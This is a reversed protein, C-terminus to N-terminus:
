TIERYLGKEAIVRQVAKPLMDDLPERAVIRRRVETSSLDCPPVDLVQYAASLSDPPAPANPRPAVLIRSRNLITDPERWNPLDALADMGIILFRESDPYQREVAALTEVTYSPGMRDLEIRSAEFGPHDAVAAEVMALRDEPDALLEDVKHPPRASVVFLVRDLRAQAMAALAISLHTSHIPDFTGGFVGIRM